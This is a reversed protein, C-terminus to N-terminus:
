LAMNSNLHAAYSTAIEGLNLLNFRKALRQEGELNDDAHRKHGHTTFAGNVGNDM